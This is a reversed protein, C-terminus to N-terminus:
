KVCNQIQTETNAMTRTELMGCEALCIGTSSNQRSPHLASYDTSLWSIYWCFMDGGDEPNFFLGLLFGAHLLYCVTSWALEKYTKNKSGSSPPSMNTQFISSKMAVATLVEFGANEQQGDTIPKEGVPFLIAIKSVGFGFGAINVQEHYQLVHWWWIKVHFHSIPVRYRIWTTITSTLLHGM